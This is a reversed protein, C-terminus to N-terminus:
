TTTETGNVGGEKEHGCVGGGGETGQELLRRINHEKNSIASWTYVSVCCRAFNLMGKNIGVQYV